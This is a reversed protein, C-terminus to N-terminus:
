KKYKALMYIRSGNFAYNEEFTEALGKGTYFTEFESDMYNKWKCGLKGGISYYHGETITDADASAFDPVSIAYTSVIFNFCNFKVSAEQDGDEILLIIDNLWDEDHLRVELDSYEDGKGDVSISYYCIAKQYPVDDWKEECIKEAKAHFEEYTIEKPLLNTFCGSLLATLSLLSIKYLVKM